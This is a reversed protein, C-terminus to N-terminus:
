QAQQMSVCLGCVSMALPKKKQMKGEYMDSKRQQIQTTHQTVLGFQAMALDVMALIAFVPVYNVHWQM